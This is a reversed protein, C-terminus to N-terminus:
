HGTWSGHGRYFLRIRRICRYLNCQFHYRRGGGLANALNDASDMATITMAPANAAVGLLGLTALCILKKM